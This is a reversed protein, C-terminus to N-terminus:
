GGDNDFRLIYSFSFLEKRLEVHEYYHWGRLQLQLNRAKLSIFLWRVQGYLPGSECPLVSPYAICSPMHVFLYPHFGSRQL